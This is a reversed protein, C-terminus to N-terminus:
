VNEVNHRRFRGLPQTHIMYILIDTCNKIATKEPLSENKVACAEDDCIRAYDRFAEDVAMNFDVGFLLDAMLRAIKKM